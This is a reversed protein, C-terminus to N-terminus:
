RTRLIIGGGLVEESTDADYFVARQGPTVAWQDEDWHIRVTGDSVPEIWASGESSRYRHRVLARIPQDPPRGSIWHVAGVIAQRTLLDEKEGVIVANHQPDIRVVYLPVGNKSTVPLGRRQGVTYFAIGPHEGIVEGNRNLVPGPGQGLYGRSQLFSRYDGDTIFCVDQSDPKDAVPLGWKKAMQRTEVKTQEGLPFLTRALSDQNMVYLVYSQDKQRDVAKLLRYHGNKVIRAYHGTAIYDADLQLSRYLFARFKIFENCRVCPNPTRGQLYESIFDNIVTQRFYDTLNFVYHPISLYHAVRRADSASEETCCARGVGGPGSYLHFTVGIVEYGQEVLLAAAVSSDVGGSM